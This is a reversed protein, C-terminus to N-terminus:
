KQEIFEKNKFAKIFKQCEQENFKAIHAEYETMGMVQQMKKYAESRTYGWKQPQQWLNDFYRHCQKKLERLEYNAMRGLPKHDKSNKHTGVYSDCKPYNACVWVFGYSKGYIVSSDKLQAKAGCYPCLIEM